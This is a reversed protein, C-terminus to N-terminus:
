PESRPCAQDVVIIVLDPMAEVVELLAPQETM